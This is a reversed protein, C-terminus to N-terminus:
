LSQQKWYWNTNEQMSYLYKSKVVLEGASIVQGYITTSNQLTYADSIFLIVHFGKKKPTMLTLPVM